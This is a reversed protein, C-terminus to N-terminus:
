RGSGWELVCAGWTFGAGFAALLVTDGDTLRGEAAAQALALPLTAASTNGLEGIYDAVREGPMGLRTGVARTIRANAQHPVFLDVDDVGIGAAAMAARSAETLRAVANRYTEQGDMEIVGRERTAVIADRGGGDCGLVVPGLGGGRGAGLVVAGAGDGFLMATARDDSDTMRSLVDAGVVLVLEARGAEIQAAGLALASLFATCAAGVDLAGAREAGIEHAVLPAANPTLEDASM